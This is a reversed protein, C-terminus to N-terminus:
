MSRRYQGSVEHLAHTIQRLSCSCHAELLGTASGRRTRAIHCFVVSAGVM